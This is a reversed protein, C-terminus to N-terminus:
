TIRLSLLPAEYPSQRQTPIGVEHSSSGLDNEPSHGYFLTVGTIVEETLLQRGVLGLLIQCQGLLQPLHAPTLLQCSVM